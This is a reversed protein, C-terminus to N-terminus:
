VSIQPVQTSVALFRINESILHFQIYVANSFSM